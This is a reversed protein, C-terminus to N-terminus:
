PEVAPDVRGAQDGLRGRYQGVLQARIQPNIASLAMVAVVVGLLFMIKSRIGMTM